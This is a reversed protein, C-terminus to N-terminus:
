CMHMKTQKIVKVTFSFIYETVFGHERGNKKNTQKLDCKGSTWVQKVNVKTKLFAISHHCVEDKAISHRCACLCFCKKIVCLSCLAGHFRLFLDRSNVPSKLWFIFLVGHGFVRVQQQNAKQPHNASREKHSYIKRKTKYKNTWPIQQRLVYRETNEDGM